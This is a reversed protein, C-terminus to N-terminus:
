REEEKGEEQPGQEASCPPVAAAAQEAGKEPPLELLIDRSIVVSDAVQPLIDLPPAKRLDANRGVSDYMAESDRYFFEGPDQETLITLPSKRAAEYNVLGSNHYYVRGEGSPRLRPKMEVPLWWLGCGVVVAAGLFFLPLCGHLSRAGQQKNEQEKKM